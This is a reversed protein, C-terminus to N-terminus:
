VLGKVELYEKIGEHIEDYRCNVVKESGNVLYNNYPCNSTCITSINCDSCKALNSTTLSRYEAIKDDDLIPEDSFSGIIQDQQGIASTCSYIKGDYSLVYIRGYNCRKIYPYSFEQNYFVNTLQMHERVSSYIQYREVLDAIDVEFFRVYEALTLHNSRTRETADDKTLAYIISVDESSFISFLHEILERQFDVNEKDLNVRVFVKIGTEAVCRIGDITRDFSSGSALPRRIDHIRKPGDITIVFSGFVEKYSEIVDMFYPIEIGNTFPTVDVDNSAAYALVRTIFERNPRLFPEGGFLKIITKKHRCRIEDIMQLYNDIDITSDDSNLVDREFCYACRLNCKTNLLTYIECEDYIDYLNTFVNSDSDGDVIQEESKEGTLLNIYCRRGDSEYEFVNNIM